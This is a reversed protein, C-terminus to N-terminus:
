SLYLLNELHSKTVNPRPTMGTNGSKVFMQLLIDQTGVNEDLKVEPQCCFEVTSDVEQLESLIVLTVFCSTTPLKLHSNYCPVPALRTLSKWSITVLQCPCEKCQFLIPQLCNITDTASGAKVHKFVFLFSSSNNGFHRCLQVNKCLPRVCFTNDGTPFLSLMMSSAAAIRVCPLAGGMPSSLMPATYSISVCTMPQVPGAWQARAGLLCPQPAKQATRQSLLSISQSSSHLLSNITVAVM